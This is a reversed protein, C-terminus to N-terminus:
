SYECKGRSQYWRTDVETPSPGDLIGQREMCDAVGRDIDELALPPMRAELVARAYESTQLLDPVLLPALSRITSASSELEAIGEFWASRCASDILPWIRSLAGSTQLLRDCEEAFRESPKHQGAEIMDVLAGAYIIPKGLETQTLGAAERLRRLEGGFYALLPGVEGPIM